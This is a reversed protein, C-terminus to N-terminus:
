GVFHNCGFVARGVGWFIGNEESGAQLINEKCEGGIAEPGRGPDEARGGRREEIDEVVLDRSQLGEREM